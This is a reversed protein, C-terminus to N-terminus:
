RDLVRTEGIRMVAARTTRTGAALFRAKQETAPEPSLPLTGWHAAIALRAGLTRAIALAEEPDVHYAAQFERPAWAGAPVLAYDVRGVKRRIDAFIEGAGTDGAFYVRRGAGELVYGGWHMSDTAFAPRRVGHIAPVATIRLGGVSASEYWPLEVVHRFGSAAALRRTGAPVYLHAGPFRAALSRLTPMDLHDLDAHSVIVADLRDILAPDPLVPVLRDLRALGIGVHDSFVPDTLVTRGGIRVLFTSHGFWTVAVAANRAAVFSRAADGDPMVHGRPLAEVGPFRRASMALLHSAWDAVTATPEHAPGVNAYRVPADSAVAVDDRVSTACGGAVLLAAAAAITPVRRDRPHRSM